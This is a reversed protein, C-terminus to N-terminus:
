AADDEDAAAKYKIQALLCDAADVDDRVGLYTPQYLSGGKLCYLYRVEVVDGVTPVPFNIPITVNGMSVGELSVAVSRQANVKAVVASCTAYFKFKVQDGGASPRGVKYPASARKFVVGERGAAKLAVYAARKEAADAIATVAEAYDPRTFPIARRIAIRECLPLHTVTEGKWSLVDFVWFKTGVLEGDLVCDPLDALAIEVEKPLCVVLGKRNSGDVAGGAVAVMLRRGDHKEELLWEPSSLYIDVADEDIPNLLQPLRGSVLGAKETMAFAQGSADPTYGKGKKEAVIKEYIKVAADLAVPANTKTGTSLANGRRGYAFNVVYGAGNAEIWAQYVKDSGGERYFLSASPLEEAASSATNTQSM